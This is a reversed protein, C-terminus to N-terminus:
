SSAARIEAYTIPILWLIIFFYSSAMTFTETENIDLQLYIIEVM